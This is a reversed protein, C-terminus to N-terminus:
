DDELCNERNKEGKEELSIDTKGISETGNKHICEFYVETIFCCTLVCTVELNFLIEFRNCFAAVVFFLLNVIVNGKYIKCLLCAFVVEVVECVVGEAVKVVGYCLKVIENLHNKFFCAM